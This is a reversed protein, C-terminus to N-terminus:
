DKLSDGIQKGFEFARRAEGAALPGRTHEVGIRLPQSLPKLGKKELEAQIDEASLKSKELWKRYGTGYAAFGKGNWDSGLGAIFRRMPGAMKGARTPSGAVLFDLDSQLGDQSKKLDLLAVEHGSEELGRAIQEAVQRGNGWRSYFIVAGKM